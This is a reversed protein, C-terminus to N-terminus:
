GISDRGSRRGMTIPWLMRNGYWYIFINIEHWLREDNAISSRSYFGHYLVTLCYLWSMKLENLLKNVFKLFLTNQKCFNLVLYFLNCFLISLLVSKPNLFSILYNPLDTSDLTYQSNRYCVTTGLFWYFDQIFAFNYCIYFPIYM